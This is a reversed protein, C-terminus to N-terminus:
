MVALTLLCRPVAVPQAHKRSHHTIEQHKERHLSETSHKGTLHGVQGERKGRAVRGGDQASVTIERARCLDMDGTGWYVIHLCLVAVM